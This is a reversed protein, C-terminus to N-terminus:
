LIALPTLFATLLVMWLSIGDVGLRYGVGFAPIWSATETFQMAGVEPRFAAYMVLALVFTAISVAFAIGKVAAPERRSWVGVLIAGALPLFVIWSLIPFGPSNM